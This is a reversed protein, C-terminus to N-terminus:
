FQVFLCGRLSRIRVGETGSVWAAAQANSRAGSERDLITFLLVWWARRNFVHFIPRGLPTAARQQSFHEIKVPKTQELDGHQRQSTTVHVAVPMGAKGWRRQACAAATWKMEGGTLQHRPQM